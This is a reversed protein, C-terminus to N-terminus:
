VKPLLDNLSSSINQWVDSLRGTRATGEYKSKNSMVCVGTNVESYNDTGTDTMMIQKAEDRFYLVFNDWKQSGFKINCVLGGMMATGNRENKFRSMLKLIDNGVDFEHRSLEPMNRVSVKRWNAPTIGVMLTELMATTVEIRKQRMVISIKTMFYEYSFPVIQYKKDGFCRSEPELANIAM